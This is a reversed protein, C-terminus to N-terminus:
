PAEEVWEEVRTGPVLRVRYLSHDMAWLRVSEEYIVYGTHGLQLEGTCYGAGHLTTGELLVNEAGVLVGWVEGLNRADVVGGLAVLLLPSEARGSGGSSLDPRVLVGTREEALTVSPALGVQGEELWTKTGADLEWHSTLHTWSFAGLSEVPRFQTAVPVAEAEEPLASSIGPTTRDVAPVVSRAVIAAHPLEVGDWAREVLASLRRAGVAKTEYEADPM